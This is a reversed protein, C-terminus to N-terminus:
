KCTSLFNEGHVELELGGGWARDRDEKWTELSSGKREPLLRARTIGPTKVLEAERSGVVGARHVHGGGGMRAIMGPLARARRARSPSWGRAPDGAPITSVRQVGGQNRHGTGTQEEGLIGEEGLKARVAPRHVGGGM